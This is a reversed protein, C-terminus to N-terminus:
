RTSAHEENFEKVFELFTEETGREKLIDWPSVCDSEEKVLKIFPDTKCAKIDIWSCEYIIIPVIIKKDVLEQATHGRFAGDYIKQYKEILDYRDSPYRLEVWEPDYADNKRDMVGQQYTAKAARVAAGGLWRNHMYQQERDYVKKAWAFREDPTMLWYSYASEPNNFDSKYGDSYRISHWWRAEEWGVVKKHKKGKSYIPKRKTQYIKQEVITEQRWFHSWAYFSEVKFKLEFPKDV